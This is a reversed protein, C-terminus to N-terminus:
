PTAMAVTPVPLPAARGSSVRNLWVIRVSDPLAPSRTTTVTTASTQAFEGSRSEYSCSHPVWAFMETPLWPM